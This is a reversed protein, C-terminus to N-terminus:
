VQNRCKGPQLSTGSGGVLHHWLLCLLSSPSLGLLHDFPAELKWAQRATILYGGRDWGPVILLSCTPVQFGVGVWCYHYGKGEVSNISVLHSGSNRYYRVIILCYAVRGRCLHNWLFGALVSLKISSQLRRISLIYVSWSFIVWWILFWSFRLCFSFVCNIATYWHEM